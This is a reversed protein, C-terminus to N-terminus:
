WRHRERDIDAQRRRWTDETSRSGGATDCTSREGRLIHLRSDADVNGNAHQVVHQRGRHMCPVADAQPPPAVLLGAAAVLLVAVARIM